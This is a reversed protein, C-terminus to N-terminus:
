PRALSSAWAYKAQLLDVDGGVQVGSMANRGYRNIEDNPIRGSSRVEDDIVDGPLRHML